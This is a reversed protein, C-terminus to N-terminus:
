HAGADTLFSGYIWGEQTHTGDDGGIRIHVWSGRREVPTVEIDRPLTTIVATATSPGARVNAVSVGITAHQEAVQVPEPPSSGAPIGVGHLLPGIKTTLAALAPGVREGVMPAIRPYFVVAAAVSAALAGGLVLRRAIQAQRQRRIAKTAAGWRADRQWEVRAASLRQAEEVKWTEQAKQIAAQVEAAWRVRADEIVSRAQALETERESLTSQMAVFADRQRQAEAYDALNRMAEVEVRAEALAAEAQEVRSTATALVQATHERGLAEAEQRGRERAENIREQARAEAQAFRGDQEAQWATRAATLEAEITERTREAPVANQRAAAVETERDRLAAQMVALEDRLREIEAHDGLDRLAEAQLRAEALAAEVQALRGDQEAQWATRAATLEAEITERTREAPVANQRAAAVEAERDRLAAQMAALEDRLRQIEAYDGLDRLAETQLRAEALAAEAQEFRSTAAAVARASQERWQAEVAALRASATAKWAEQARSLAADAERQWHDRAQELREQARAEAAAFRAEQEARWAARSEDLAAAAQAAADALRADLEAQWTTRAVTLEAELEQRSRLAQEVEQRMEALATERAGLSATAAALARASQEQWHGELAALRGAEGAKWAKEARSLAADAERQWREHAQDLNQQAQAQATAFRDEQEAHWAARNEELASAAQAASDALRQDLEAEWATRAARLEAEAQARAQALERASQERWHAEIAAVRVAAGAEWTKEAKSLATEAERQWREHAQDIRKQARAEAKAFRAEQEAQWVARSHELTTAAQAAADALRAELEAAWATRAAAMEAARAALATQLSAHEDRLRRLAVADGPDAARHPPAAAEPAAAPPVVGPSIPFDRVALTAGYDGDVSIIRIALTHAADVGKPPLYVLGDLDEPTLSWTRDDNRSGKSLRARDPLREVRLSLRGHRRYPSLLPALELPIGGSAATPEAMVSKLDAVPPLSM